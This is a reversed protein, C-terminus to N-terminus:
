VLSECFCFKGPPSLLYMQTHGTYLGQNIQGNVKKLDIYNNIICDFRIM